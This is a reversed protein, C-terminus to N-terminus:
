TAHVAEARLLVSGAVGCGAVTWAIRSLVEHGGRRRHLVHVVALGLAVALVWAPLRLAALASIWAVGALAPARLDFRGTM